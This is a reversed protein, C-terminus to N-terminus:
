KRTANTFSVATGCQNQRFAVANFPEPEFQNIVTPQKRQNKGVWNKAHTGSSAQNGLREGSSCLVTRAAIKRQTCEVTSVVQLPEAVQWAVPLTRRNAQINTAANKKNSILSRWQRLNQAHLCGALRVVAPSLCSPAANVHEVQV